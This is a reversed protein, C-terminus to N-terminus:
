AEGQLARDATSPRVREAVPPRFLQGVTNSALDTSQKLLALVRIIERDAVIWGVRVGPVLSKSFSGLYIVRGDRDLSKIPPVPEGEFLAGPLGRGRRDLLVQSHAIDLIAKRNAAPITCGTPNHYTPVTYLFKVGKAISAFSTPASGTAKWRSTGSGHKTTQVAGIAGLYGPAEVIVEDGPDIFAKSILDLGQQSGETILVNDAEAQIGYAGVHEAIAERLAPAGETPLYQWTTISGPSGKFSRTLKSWPFPESM